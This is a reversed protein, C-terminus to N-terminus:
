DRPLCSSRAGPSARDHSHAAPSRRRCCRGYRLAARVAPLGAGVDLFGEGDSCGQRRRTGACRGPRPSADERRRCCTRDAIDVPRNAVGAPPSRVLDVNNGAVPLPLRRRALNGPQPTNIAAQYTDDEAIGQFRQGTPQAPPIMEVSPQGSCKEANAEMVHVAQEAEKPAVDEVPNRDLRAPRKSMYLNQRLRVKEAAVHAVFYVNVVARATGSLRYCLSVAQAVKRTQCYVCVTACDEKM